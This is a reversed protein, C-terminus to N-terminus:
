VANRDGGIRPWENLRELAEQADAMLIPDGKAVGRGLKRWARLRKELWVKDTRDESWTM